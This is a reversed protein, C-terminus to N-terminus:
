LPRRSNGPQQQRVDQSQNSRAQSRLNYGRQPTPIFPPPDFRSSTQPTVGPSSRVEPSSAPFAEGEGRSNPTGYSWRPPTWQNRGEVPLRRFDTGRGPYTESGRPPGSFTNFSVPLQTPQIGPSVKRDYIEMLQKILRKLENKTSFLTTALKNKYFGNTTQIFQRIFKEDNDIKAKAAIENLRYYYDLIDENPLQRARYFVEEYNLDSPFEEKMATELEEYTKVKTEITRYYSLAPGHVYSGFIALKEADSLKKLIAMGAFKSLFEQIDQNKGSFPILNTQGM